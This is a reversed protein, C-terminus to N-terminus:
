KRKLRQTHLKSIKYTIHLLIAFLPCINPLNLLPQPYNFESFLCMRQITTQLRSTTEQKYYILTRIDCSAAGAGGAVLVTLQAPLLTLWLSGTLALHRCQVCLLALLCNTVSLMYVMSGGDCWVMSGVVLWGVVMVCMPPGVLRYSLVNIKM